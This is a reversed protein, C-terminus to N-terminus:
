GDERAEGAGEGSGSDALLGGQGLAAIDRRSLRDGLLLRPLLLDVINSARSRVCGPAGLILTSGRRGLLLLNGPFVPAGVVDVCGGARAIAQPTLDDVDMTATEGVMILLDIGADVEAAIAAALEREPESGLAVYLARLTHAGLGSLREALPRRYAELLRERRSEAGSVLITVRRQGLARFTLVGAGLSVAAQVQAEPLAFPIVKLTALARGPAVVSHAPLTALTVGDLLNLDLLRERDIGLLGHEPAQLTVRGGYAPKIRLQGAAALGTAIRLAAADEGVDTPELMAVYVQEHGAVSLERLESGGLRRGKKLVRRGEHSVNHGLIHGEAERLSVRAFKM